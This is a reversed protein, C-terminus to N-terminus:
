HCFPACSCLCLLCSVEKSRPLMRRPRQAQGPRRSSACMSWRGTSYRTIFLEEVFTLGVLARPQRQPKHHNAHLALVRERRARRKALRQVHLRWQVRRRSRDFAVSPASRSNSEPSAPTPRPSPTRRTSRNKSTPTWRPTGYDCWANKIAATYKDRRQRSQRPRVDQLAAREHPTM